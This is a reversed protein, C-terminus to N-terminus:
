WISHDVFTSGCAREQPLDLQNFLPLLMQAGGVSHLTSHISHTTVVKVGEMMLAHPTHMFHCQNERSISNLCLQRDCNKPCYAFVLLSALKGDFLYKVYGAPIDVENRFKFCSQYGAGLCYLSNIQQLNLSESFLYVAGMQGSFTNRHEVDASCGIFCRDFHESNNVPWNLDLTSVLQGDIYCQVENRGWRSFVYVLVVHQWKRQQIEYKICRQVGQSSKGKVASLVLFNGVFYCAYNFNPTGFYFLHPTEGEFNGSNIPDMRVWVSFTWGANSSWRNLPPIQIGNHNGGSFSFFVDPGDKRLVQQLVQLLKSSHRAWRGNRAQLARLICKMDRVEISYSALVSLLEILLELCLFVAAKIIHQSAPECAKLLDVLSLIDTPERILFKHEM